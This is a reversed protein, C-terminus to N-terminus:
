RAVGVFCMLIGYLAPFFFQRINQRRAIKMKMLAVNWRFAVDLGHSRSINTKFFDNKSNPHFSQVNCDSFLAAGGLRVVERM